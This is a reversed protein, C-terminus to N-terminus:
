PQDTATQSCTEVKGGAQRWAKWGGQLVQVLALGAQRLREAVERSSHCEDGGCYVVVVCSPTWASLVDPLREEWHDMNLPLAGPVHGQAMEQDTRADVWVIRRDMTMVKAVSIEDAALSSGSWSPRKPHWLGALIAPVLAAMLLLGARSLSPSRM